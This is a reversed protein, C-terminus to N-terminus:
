PDNEVSDPIYNFVIPPHQPCAAVILDHFRVLQWEGPPLVAVLELPTAPPLTPSTTM